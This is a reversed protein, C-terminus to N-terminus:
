RTRLLLRIHLMMDDFTHNATGVGGSLERHVVSTERQQQTKDHRQGLDDDFM